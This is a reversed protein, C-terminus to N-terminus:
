GHEVVAAEVCWEVVATQQLQDDGGRHNEGEGKAMALENHALPGCGAVGDKGRHVGLEEQYDQMDHLPLM